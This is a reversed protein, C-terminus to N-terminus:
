PTEGQSTAATMMEISFDEIVPNVLFRECMQELMETAGDAGVGELVIEFSKGVRVESIKEFGNRRLADAIAKGEPDLIEPRPYVVVRTRTSPKKSM